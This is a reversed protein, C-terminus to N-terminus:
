FSYHYALQLGLSELTPLFVWSPEDYRKERLQYGLAVGYATGITAGAIVDHTFHFNDNMRSYAVFGALAYAPISWALDHEMGIVSAFAFATTTHGSPFSSTDQGGPRKQRVTHKLVTTTLSSYLTTKAMLKAREDSRVSYNSAYDFWMAGVYIINPAVQGLIDGYYSYDGLPKSSYAQKQANDGSQNRVHNLVLTLTGGIALVTRANPNFAPSSWEEWFSRPRPGYHVESYSQDSFLLAILILFFRM